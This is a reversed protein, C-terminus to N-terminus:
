QIPGGLIDELDAIAAQLGLLAQLYEVKVDRLSRQAELAALVSDRGLRYSEEALGQLTTATPVLTTRYAEVQARQATVREIAAFVKAEVQRRMSERRAKITDARALSGAIEGQNRSFLPIEFSLGAHPGVNFEGPANLATGFSFTPAPVREARLLNLLSSEIAAEREIAMLDVNTAFATATARDLTPIPPAQGADGSLAIAMGPPRNLIANLEAQTSRRSSRAVDFDAQARVVQLEAQMVELRPAAGEEFRAQAVEKFRQAVKLMNEALALEEDAALLGYFALRADRRLQKLANAEDIDALALGATALAVRKSRTGGIDLPFGLALDGHPVDKTIEASFEPNAWQRAARVEAARVARSRRVAALELNQATALDLVQRFTLPSVAGQATGAGTQARVPSPAALAHVLGLALMAGALPLGRM